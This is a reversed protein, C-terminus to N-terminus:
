GRPTSPPDTVPLRGARRPAAAPMLLGAGATILLIIAGLTELYLGTSPSSRAPTLAQPNGVFGTARADPLDGLLAIGLAVLGLVGVGLLAARSRSSVAVITLVAALVAV